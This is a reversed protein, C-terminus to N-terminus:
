NSRRRKKRGGSVPAIPVSRKRVRGASFREAIDAMTEDQGIRELSAESRKRVERALIKKKKISEQIGKAAKIDDDTGRNLERILSEGHEINAEIRGARRANLVMFIATGIAGLIAWIGLSRLWTLM